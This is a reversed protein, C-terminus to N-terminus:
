MQSVSQITDRLESVVAHWPWAGDNAADGGFVNRVRLRGHINGIDGAIGCKEIDVNNNLLTM